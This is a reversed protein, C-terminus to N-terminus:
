DNCIINALFCGFFKSLNDDLAANVEDDTSHLWGPTVPHLIILQLSHLIYKTIGPVMNVVAFLYVHFQLM